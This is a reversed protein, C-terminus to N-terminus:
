PKPQYQQMLQKLKAATEASMKGNKQLEALKKETEPMNEAMKQLQASLQQSVKKMQEAASLVKYESPIVFTDPPLSVDNRIGTVESEIRGTEDITRLPAGISALQSFMDTKGRQCPSAGSQAAAIAGASQEAVKRLLTFMQELGADEMAQTSGLVTGCSQGDVLLKFQTTTYGAVVPGDGDAQFSLAPKNAAPGAPGLADTMDIVQQHQTSVVKLSQKAYDFIIFTTGDKTNLRGMTGETLFQGDKGSPDRFDIITGSYVNSSFVTLLVLLVPGRLM